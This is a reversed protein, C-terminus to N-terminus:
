GGTHGAHESRYLGPISQRAARNNEIAHRTEENKHDDDAQVTIDATFNATFEHARDAMLRRVVRSEAAIQQMQAADIGFNRALAQARKTEGELLFSMVLNTKAQVGDAALEMATALHHRAETLRGALMLTYGLDNRIGADTPRLQVASNFHRVATRLDSRSAILGLGHHAQAAYATDLLATYARQAEPILDLKYLAFARLSALEDRNSKGSRQLEEIHALAAYNQGQALMSRILDAHIRPQEPRERMAAEEATDPVVACASLLCVALATMLFLARM